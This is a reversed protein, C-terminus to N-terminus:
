KKSSICSLTNEIKRALKDIKDNLIDIEIQLDKEGMVKTKDGIASTLFAIFLNLVIVSNIITFSITILYSNPYLKSIASTIDFWNDFLALALLTHMSQTLHGFMHPLGDSWYHTSLIAYIYFILLMLGFTQMINNWARSIIDIIVKSSSLLTMFRILRICRFPALFTGLVLWSIIIALLEFYHFFFGHDNSFWRSGFAFMHLAFELTFFCLFFFNLSDVKEKFETTELATYELGMTLANIVLLLALFYNTQPNNLVNIVKQRIVDM